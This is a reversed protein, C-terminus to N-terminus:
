KAAVRRKREPRPEIRKVSYMSVGQQKVQKMQATRPGHVKEIARYLKDAEKGNLDTIGDGVKLEQAAELYELNHRTDLQRVIRDKLTKAPAPMDKETLELEFTAM